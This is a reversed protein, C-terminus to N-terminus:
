LVVSLPLAFEPLSPHVFGVITSFSASVRARCPSLNFTYQSPSSLQNAPTTDRYEARLLGLRVKHLVVVAIRCPLVQPPRLPHQLISFQIIPPPIEHCIRTLSFLIRILLCSLALLSFSLHQPASKSHEPLGCPFLEAASDDPKAAMWHRTPVHDLPVIPLNRQM